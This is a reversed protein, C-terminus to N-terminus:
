IVAYHMGLFAICMWENNILPCLQKVWIYAENSRKNDVQHLTSSSVWNIWSSDEKPFFSNVLSVNSPIINTDIYNTIVWETM